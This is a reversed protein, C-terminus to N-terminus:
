FTGIYVAVIKKTSMLVQISWDHVELHSYSHSANCSETIYMTFVLM